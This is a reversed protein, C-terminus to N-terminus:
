EIQSLQESFMTERQAAPAQILTEAFVQAAYCDALRGLAQQEPNTLPRKLLSRVQEALAKISDQFKQETWGAMGALQREVDAASTAQSLETEVSGLMMLSGANRLRRREPGSLPRGLKSEMDAALLDCYVRYRESYIEPM